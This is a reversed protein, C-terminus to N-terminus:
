ATLRRLPITISACVGEACPGVSLEFDDGYIAALRARSNELGIGKRGEGGGRETREREWKAGPGSNVVEIRLRGGIAAAAVRVRGGKEAPNIGHVLANEVLPQLIFVPVTAAEAGPAIECSWELRDDFRKQQISLYTRVFQMEKELSVERQDSAELVGRLLESLACIMEDAAEPRTYVLSSITHLTNFLFHPQLQMQLATLRAEALKAEAQIARRERATSRQYHAVAHASAVLAIYLPVVVRARLYRPRLRAADPIGAIAALALPEAVSERRAVVGSVLSEDILGFALATKGIAYGVAVHLVMAGACGAIHAPLAWQIKRLQMPVRFAFWLVAPAVVVWPIWDMAAVLLAVRPEGSVAGVVIHAVFATALGLGLPVVLLRRVGANEGTSDTAVFDASM